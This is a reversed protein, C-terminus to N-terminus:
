SSARLKRERRRSAPGPQQLGASPSIEDDAGRGGHQTRGTLPQGVRVRGCWVMLFCANSELCFCVSDVLVVMCPPDDIQVNIQERILLWTTCGRMCGRTVISYTYHYGHRLRAVCIDDDTSCPTHRRAAEVHYINVHQNTTSRYFSTCNPM